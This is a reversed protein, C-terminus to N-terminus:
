TSESGLKCPYINFCEYISFISKPLIIAKERKLIWDLHQLNHKLPKNLILKKPLSCILDVPTHIDRSNLPVPMISDTCHLSDSIRSIFAYSLTDKDKRKSNKIKPVHLFITWLVLMLCVCCSLDDKDWIVKM